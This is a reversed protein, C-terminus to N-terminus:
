VMFDANFFGPLIQLTVELPVSRDKTQFAIYSLPLALPLLHLVGMDDQIVDGLLTPGGGGEHSHRHELLRIAYFDRNQHSSQATDLKHKNSLRIEQAAQNLM